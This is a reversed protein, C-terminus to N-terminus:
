RVLIMKVIKVEGIENLSNYYIPIYHWKIKVIKVEGIDNKCNRGEGIENKVIKGRWNLKFM